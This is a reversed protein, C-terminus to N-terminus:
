FIVLVWYCNDFFIQKFKKKKLFLNLLYTLGFLLLFIIVLLLFFSKGIIIDIEQINNNIFSLFPLLFIVSILSIQLFNKKDQM